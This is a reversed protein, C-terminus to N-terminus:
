PGSLSINRIDMIDLTFVKPFGTGTYEEEDWEGHANQGAPLGGEKLM